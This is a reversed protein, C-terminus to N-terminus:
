QMIEKYYKVTLKAFLFELFLNIRLGPKDKRDRLIVDISILKLSNYMYTNYIRETQGEM